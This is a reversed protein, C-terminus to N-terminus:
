CVDNMITASATAYGTIAKEYANPLGAKQRPSNSVRKKFCFFPIHAESCNRLDEQIVRQLLQHLQEMM